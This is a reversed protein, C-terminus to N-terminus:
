DRQTPLLARIADEETVFGYDVMEFIAFELRRGNVFMLLAKRGRLKAEYLERIQAWKPGSLPITDGQSGGKVEILYNENDKQATFDCRNRHCEINTFGKAELKKKAAIEWADM